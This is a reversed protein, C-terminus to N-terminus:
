PRMKHVIVEGIRVHEGQLALADAGLQQDVEQQFPYGDEVCRAGPRVFLEPAHECNGLGGPVLSMGVVLSAGLVSAGFVLHARTALRLRRSRQV